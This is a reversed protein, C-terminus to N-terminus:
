GPSSGKRNGAFDGEKGSKEAVVFESGRRSGGHVLEDLSQAGTGACVNGARRSWVCVSKRVGLM